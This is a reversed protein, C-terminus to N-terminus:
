VVKKYSVRYQVRRIASTSLGYKEALADRRENAARIDRVQDENLTGRNGYPNGKNTGHRSQDLKNESPTKWSLHKPNVCSLHGKGCSHAAELGDAPAPGNALECMFRHAYRQKGLHGFCGYGTPHKSFPWTLCDDGDFSCHEKLWLYAKGKGKNYPQYDLKTRVYPRNTM